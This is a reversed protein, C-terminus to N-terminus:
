IRFGVSKNKVYLVELLHHIAVKCYRTMLLLWDLSPELPGRRLALALPYGLRYASSLGSSLGQATERLQAIPRIFLLKYIAQYRVDGFANNLFSLQNAINILFPNKASPANNNVIPNNRPLTNERPPHGKPWHLPVYSKPYMYRPIPNINKPIIKPIYPSTALAGFVRLLFDQIFSPSGVEQEDSPDNPDLTIIPPIDTKFNYEQNHRQKKSQTNMKYLLLRDLGYLIALVSSIGIIFDITALDM